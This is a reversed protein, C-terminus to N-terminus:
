RGGLGRDVLQMDPIRFQSKLFSSSNERSGSAVPPRPLHSADAQNYSRKVSRRNSGTDFPDNYITGHQRQRLIGM